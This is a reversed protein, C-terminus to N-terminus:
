KSDKDRKKDTWGDHEGMENQPHNDWYHAREKM